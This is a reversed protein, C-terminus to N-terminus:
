ASLPPARIAPPPDGPRLAPRNQTENGRPAATLAMPAPFAPDASLVAKYAPAGPCAVGALCIPCDESMASPLDSADLPKEAGYATCIVWHGDQSLGAAVLPQAANLLLVLSGVLAFLLRDCRLAAFWTPRHRTSMAFGNASVVGARWRGPM